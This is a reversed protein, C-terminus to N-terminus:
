SGGGRTRPRSRERAPGRPRRGGGGPGGAAGEGRAQVGGRDHARLRLHPHGRDRSPPGGGGRAPTEHWRRPRSRRSASRDDPRGRPPGRPPGGDRGGRRLTEGLADDADDDDDAAPPSPALPRALDADVRRRAKIQFSPPPRALRVYGRRRPPRRRSRRDRRDVRRRGRRPRASWRSTTRPSPARLASRTRSWSKGEADLRRRDPVRAPAPAVKRSARLNLILYVTSRDYPFGTEACSSAKELTQANPTVEATPRRARTGREVARRVRLDCSCAGHTAHV